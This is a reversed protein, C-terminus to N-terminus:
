SPTSSEFPGPSGSGTVYACSFMRWSMPFTGIKPM